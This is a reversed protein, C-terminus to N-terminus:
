NVKTQNHKHHCDDLLELASKKVAAACFMNHIFSASLKPTFILLGHTEQNLAEHKGATPERTNVGKITYLSKGGSVLCM